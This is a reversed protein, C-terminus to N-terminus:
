PIAGPLAPPLIRISVEPKAAEILRDFGLLPVLVRVPGITPVTFSIQGQDDTYGRALEERREAALVQVFFGPVGEGAGMQGDLNADYYIVVRFTRFGSPTPTPEIPGPTTVLRFGLVREEGASPTPTQIPSVPMTPRPTPQAPTTAGKDPAPTLLRGPPELECRLSYNSNVTDRIDMREGQGILIYMWGEYNIYYSIRSNFNGLEIDDNAAVFYENGPGRYFVMRPDVGPDLDSTQCTLQLGPKVRIRYYDNDVTAGGWPVFNARYTVGPAITTALEFSYNPEFEDYGTMWPPKPTPTLPSPIPTPTVTPTATPPAYSLILSYTSARNSSWTCAASRQFIKFYYPGYNQAVLNVTASNGDFPNSDTLIATQNLDYVVIGLDYNTTLDPVARITYLAGPVANDLRYFDDWPIVVDGPKGEFLAQGVYNALPAATAFSHNGKPFQDTTTYFVTCSFSTSQPQQISLQSDAAFLALPGGLQPSESPSGRLSPVFWVLAAIFLASIGIALFPVTRKSRM